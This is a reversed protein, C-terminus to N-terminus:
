SDRGHDGIDIDDIGVETCGVRYLPQLIRANDAYDGFVGVGVNVQGRKRRPEVADYVIRCLTDLGLFVLEVHERALTADDVAFTTEFACDKDSLGTLKLENLGYFPDDILGHDLLVSYMSCPAKCALEKHAGYFMRWENLIM